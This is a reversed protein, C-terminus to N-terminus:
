FTKHCINHPKYATEYFFMDKKIIEMCVIWNLEIPGTDEFNELDLTKSCKRWTPQVRISAQSRKSYVYMEM